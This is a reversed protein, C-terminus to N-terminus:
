HELNAVFVWSCFIRFARLKNLFKQIELQNKANYASVISPLHLSM